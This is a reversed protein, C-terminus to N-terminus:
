LPAVSFLEILNKIDSSQGFHHGCDRVEFFKKCSELGLFLFNKLVKTSMWPLLGWKHNFNQNSSLDTKTHRGM